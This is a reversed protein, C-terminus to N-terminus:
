NGIVNSDQKNSTSFVRFYSCKDLLDAGKGRPTKKLLMEFDRIEINFGYKIKVNEFFFIKLAMLVTVTKRWEM